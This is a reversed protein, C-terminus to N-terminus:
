PIREVEKGRRRFSHVREMNRPLVKRKRVTFTQIM